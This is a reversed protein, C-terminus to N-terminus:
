LLICFLILAFGEMLPKIGTVIQQRSYALGIRDISQASLGMYAPRHAVGYQILVQLDLAPNM